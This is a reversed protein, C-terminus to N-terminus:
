EDDGDEIGNYYEPERVPRMRRGLDVLKSDMLDIRKSIDTFDTHANLVAIARNMGKHYTDSLEKQMDLQSSLLHETGPVDIDFVPSPLDGYMVARVHTDFVIDPPIYRRKFETSIIRDSGVDFVHEPPCIIAVDGRYITGDHNCGNGYFLAFKRGAVTIYRTSGDWSFVGMETMLQPSMRRCYDEASDTAYDRILWGVSGITAYTVLTDPLVQPLSFNLLGILGWYYILIGRAVNRGNLEPFSM